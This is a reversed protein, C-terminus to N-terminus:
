FTGDFDDFMQEREIWTEDIASSRKGFEEEFQGLYWKASEPDYKEEIDRMNLARHMMWNVLSYQHRGRVEPDVAPVVTTNTGVVTTTALSMPVLPERIVRLKVTDDAAFPANFWLERTDRDPIFHTVDGSAVTEWDPLLLDIDVAHIRQLPLTKSALRVQRVQIVRPDLTISRDGAHVTYQCVAATTSDKFLRARRAAEQQAENAFDTRLANSWLPAVTSKDDALQGFFDILQQLTM